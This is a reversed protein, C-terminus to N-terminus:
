PYGVVPPLDDFLCHIDNGTFGQNRLRVNFTEIANSVVCSDLHRFEEVLAPSLSDSM